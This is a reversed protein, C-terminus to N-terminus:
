AEDASNCNCGGVGLSQPQISNGFHERADRTGDGDRGWLDDDWKSKTDMVTVRLRHYLVM